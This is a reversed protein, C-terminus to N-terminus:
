RKEASRLYTLKNDKSIRYVDQWWRAGGRCSTYLLKQKENLTVDCLCNCKARADTPEKLPKFNKTSPNYLFINFTHYVGMGADPLSFAIDDYGDFNYDKVYASRIANPSDLSGFGTTILKGTPYKFQFTEDLSNTTFSIIIGHLLLKQPENDGETQQDALLEFKKGDKGRLYWASSVRGSQEVVGYTGTTKDGALESWEYYYGEPQKNSNTLVSKTFKELRLALYGAQKNYQVFAAKGDNSCHISLEFPKTENKSM